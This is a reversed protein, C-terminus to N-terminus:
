IHGSTAFTRTKKIKNKEEKKKRVPDTFLSNQGECSGDRDGRVCAPFTRSILTDPSPISNLIQVGLAGGEEKM